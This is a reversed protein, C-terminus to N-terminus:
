PHRAAAERVRNYALLVNTASEMVLLTGQGYAPDADSAARLAMVLAHLEQIDDALWRVIREVREAHGAKDQPAVALLDDLESLESVIDHKTGILSACTTRTRQALEVPLAVNALEREVYSANELMAMACAHAERMVAAVTDGKM